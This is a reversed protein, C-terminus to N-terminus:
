FSTDVYLNNFFYFATLICIYIYTTHLHKHRFSFIMYNSSGIQDYMKTPNIIPYNKKFTNSFQNTKKCNKLKSVNSFYVM